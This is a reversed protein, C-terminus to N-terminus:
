IQFCTSTNSMSKFIGSHMCLSISNSVTNRKMNTNADPFYLSSLNVELNSSRVINNLCRPSPLSFNFPEKLIFCGNRRPTHSFAIISQTVCLHLFCLQLCMIGLSTTKAANRSLLWSKSQQKPLGKKLHM